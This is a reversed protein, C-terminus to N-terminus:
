VPSVRMTQARSRPISMFGSPLGTAAGAAKGRYTFAQARGRGARPRSCPSTPVRAPASTAKERPGRLTDAAM